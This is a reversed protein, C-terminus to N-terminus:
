QTLQLNSSTYTHPPLFLLTWFMEFLIVLRAVVYLSLGAIHLFMGCYTPLTGLLFTKNHKEKGLRRLFVAVLAIFVCGVSYITAVKWLMQDTKSPFEIKWGGIHIGGFLVVGVLLAWLTGNDFEEGLRITDIRMPASDVAESKPPCAERNKLSARTKKLSFIHKTSYAKCFEPSSADKDDGSKQKKETDESSDSRTSICTSIDAKTTTSSNEEMEPKDVDVARVRAEELIRCIREYSVLQHVTTSVGISKPKHWYLGYVVVACLAFAIVTLELVCIPLQRAARDLIRATSWIIQTISIAKILSDSKIRDKLERQTINPLKEICKKKRLIYLDRGTLHHLNYGNGIEAEEANPKKEIVFGGMNAYYTHDWSWDDVHGDDKALKELKKHDARAALLENYAVAIIVEPAFITLIM